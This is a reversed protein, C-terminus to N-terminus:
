KATSWWGLRRLLWVLLLGGLVIPATTKILALVIVLVVAATEPIPVIDGWGSPLVPKHARGVGFGFHL